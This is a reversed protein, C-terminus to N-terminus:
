FISLYVCSIVVFLVVIIGLMGTNRVEKDMDIPEIKWNIFRRYFECQLAIMKEPNLAVFLGFSLSVAAIIFFIFNDAVLFLFLFSLFVWKNNKQNSQKM